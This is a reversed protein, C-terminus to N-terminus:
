YTAKFKIRWNFTTKPNLRNFLILQKDSGSKKVLVKRVYKIKKM